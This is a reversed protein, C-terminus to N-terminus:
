AKTLPLTVTFVTGRGLQSDVSIDGHYSDVLRQVIALGMGTGHRVAEKANASRFFEEFVHPLDEEAIGIGRDEVRLVAQKGQGDLRVDVRGGETSYRIANSVLNTVLETLGEEDAAVRAPQVRTHLMVQKDEAMPTLLEATRRVVDAFSVPQYQRAVRGEAELQSHRLLDNVLDQLSELREIARGIMDRRRTDIDGVLGAVVTKLLMHTAAVPARLEHSAKRMFRTKMTDLGQLGHYAEELQDERHRLRSSVTAALYVTFFMATSLGFAVFIVRHWDQYVTSRIFLDVTEPDSARVLHVHPLLGTYEGWVVLNVLVAGLAAHVYANPRPMLESAWIMPFILFIGFVNEVGGTYHWVTAALVLDCVVQVNGLVHITRRGLQRRAKLNSAVVGLAGNYLLLAVLAMLVPALPVQIRFVNRVVLLLVFVAGAGCWRINILWSLRSALERETLTLDNDNTSADSM